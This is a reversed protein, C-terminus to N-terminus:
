QVLKVKFFGASGSGSAGGQTYAGMYVACFPDNGTGAAYYNSPNGNTMLLFSGYGLVLGEPTGGVTTPSVVPLGIVRRFNKTTSALYDSPTNDVLDGDQNVRTDLDLAEVNKNGSSMTIDQGVSVAQLQQTDLIEGGIDSSSQSGWYGNVSAGWQSVVEGMAAQSENSCTPKVFCKDPSAPSCNARSGNYAPWQIDYQQGVVLGFNPDGPTPGVASLPGLGQPISGNFAVQGAVSLSNVNQVQLSVVVPIFLLNVPATAQVRAYVYGAPSAPNPDWPGTSSNAFDITYTSVQTSDLNWTNQNNAVAHQAGSIGNPTGDLALAATLAASDCFTQTESKAIFLRGVDVAIGLAAFMAVAAAAMTILVYGRRGNRDRRYSRRSGIESNRNRSQNGM